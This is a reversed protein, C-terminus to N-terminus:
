KSILILPRCPPFLYHLYRLYEFDAIYEFDM